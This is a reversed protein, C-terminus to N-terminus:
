GGNRWRSGRAERSPSGAEPAGSGRQGTRQVRGRVQGFVGLPGNRQGPADAAKGAGFHQEEGRALSPLFLPVTTSSALEVASANFVDAQPPAHEM